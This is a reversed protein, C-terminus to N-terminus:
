LSLNKIDPNEQKQINQHRKATWPDFMRDPLIYFQDEEIAKFVIGAVPEIPAGTTIFKEVQKALKKYTESEYYPDAAKFREPRHDESNHLSTQVYGPCYVSMGINAGEMQLDFLTAESAALAAHKSAHYSTLTRTTIVGAISAVNVIHCPTGQKMMIPIVEKMGYIISLVNAEFMWQFDRVPMDWVTGHFYVGANNFLLDITSFKEVAAKVAKQVEEYLSVDAEIALVDAGMSAITKEMEGLAKKDIDVLVVKMERRAAEKAFEAGFGHAAGTILATRGKFDKM